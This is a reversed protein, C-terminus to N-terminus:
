TGRVNGFLDLHLRPTYRFGHEKCLEAIWRSKERVEEPTTGQAMMLVRGRNVNGLKELIGRVESFDKADDVVFKLQYDYSQLFEGIVEFNVRHAEHSKAFKGHARNWPTSNSLKPSMSMLDCAVPKFITAATEITIHTGLAKLRDTLDSLDVALFPEGGTIVVHRANYRSTKDVIENVTWEEGEPEWSTYPTDCWVCRLNCGSTRIFISPMGVLIGEGQLSYFIEAIRM